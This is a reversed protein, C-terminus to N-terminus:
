FRSNVFGTWSTGRIGKRTNSKATYWCAAHHSTGPLLTGYPTRQATPSYRITHAAQCCSVTHHASDPLFIRCPTRHTSCVRCQSLAATPRTRRATSLYTTAESLSM